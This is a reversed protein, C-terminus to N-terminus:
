SGDDVILFPEGSGDKKVVVYYDAPAFDKIVFHLIWNADTRYGSPGGGSMSAPLVWLENAPRNLMCAAIGPSMGDSAAVCAAPVLEDSEEMAERLGKESEILLDLSQDLADMFSVTVGDQIEQTSVEAGDSEFTIQSVDHKALIPAGFAPRIKRLNAVIAGDDGALEFGEDGLPNMAFSEAEGEAHTLVLKGGGSSWTGALKTRSCDWCDGLRDAEFVKTRVGRVSREALTLSAFTGTRGTPQYDGLMKDTSSIVDDTGEAVNPGEHAPACGFASSSLLAAFAFSFIAPRM